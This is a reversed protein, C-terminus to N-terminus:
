KLRFNLERGDGDAVGVKNVTPVKILGDDLAHFTYTIAASCIRTASKTFTKCVTVFHKPKM